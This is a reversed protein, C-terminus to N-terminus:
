VYQRTYRSGLNTLVEYGITGAQKAVEDVGLEPDLLDIMSGEHIEDEPIDTVDLTITDMSINGVLPIRRGEFSAHGRNSLSRLYGDAYGVSVTAIRSRKAATWTHSYGVSTGPYVTRTQLVRGQLRIVQRMPNDEGEVPTVGYLAAGPRVLDFQFDPGLFIGSSNALSTKSIPLHQFANLFRDRQLQNISATQNEASVLHSMLFRVDIGQLMQPNTILKELEGEDLGLRAMGTDIQLAAPLARGLRKGLTQWAMLQGLSNLIPVLNHVVCDVETGATCGHLIYVTADDSLYPRLEIGENVHAVFFHKCGAQYLAPAVKQAGLGYANAKVVAACEANQLRSKLQLWNECIAELNITLVSPSRNLNQQEM